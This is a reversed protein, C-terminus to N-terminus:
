YYKKKYEEMNKVGMSRNCKECIPKLNEINNDGCNALSIIHGVEFKIISILTLNCIPCNHENYDKGFFNKWM